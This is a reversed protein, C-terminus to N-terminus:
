ERNEAPQTDPQESEPPLKVPMELDFHGSDLFCKRLYDHSIKVHLFKAFYKSIDRWSVEAQRLKVIKDMFETELAIAKKRKRTKHTTVRSTMITEVQMQEEVSLIQKRHFTKGLEIDRVTKTALLFQAYSFEDALGKIQTKRNARIHEKHYKQVLIRSPEPLTGYFETLSKRAKESLRTLRFVEDM